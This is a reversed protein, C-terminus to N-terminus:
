NDLVTSGLFKVSVTGDPVNGQLTDSSLAKITFSIALEKLQFGDKDICAVKVHGRKAVRTTNEIEVTVTNSESFLTLRTFHVDNSSIKDDTGPNADSEPRDLVTASIFEISVTGDPVNGQLTDSSLANIFLDINSKKLQLGDKDLCSISVHGRKALNSTNEIDVLMVGREPYLRLNSFNVGKQTLLVQNDPEPTPEPNTEPTLESQEGSSANLTTVNFWTDRFVVWDGVANIVFVYGVDDHAKQRNSGDTKIRHLGDDLVAYYIWDGVVNFAFGVGDTLKQRSGGDTKIRYIAANNPTEYHIYYVWDGVVIISNSDDDCLKQKSSGDTNMSHIYYGQREDGICYYIRGDVVNMSWVDTDDSLKKRGSGDSKITYVRDDDDGNVYFIDDGVVQIYSSQNNNLTIFDSGDTKITCIFYDDNTFYVRNGVVNIYIARSDSLKKMDGGDTNMSYLKSEDEDNSFYIRDGKIATEGNNM